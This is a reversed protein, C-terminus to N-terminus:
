RPVGSTMPSGYVATKDGGDQRTRTNYLDDYSPEASPQVAVAEYAPPPVPAAPTVTFLSAQHGQQAATAVRMQNEIDELSDNDMNTPHTGPAAGGAPKESAHM